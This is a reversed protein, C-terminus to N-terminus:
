IVDALVYGPYNPDSILPKVTQNADNTVARTVPVDNDDIKPTQGTTSFAVNQITMLVYGTVPDVKARIPTVGDVSSVGILTPSDNDDRAAVAM